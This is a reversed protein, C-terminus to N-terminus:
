NYRKSFIKLQRRSALHQSQSAAAAFHEMKVKLKKRDVKFEQINDLDTSKLTYAAATRCGGIEAGTYNKLEAPSCTTSSLYGNNDM